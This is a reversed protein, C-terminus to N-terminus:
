RATKSITVAFGNENRQIDKMRVVYGISPCLTM